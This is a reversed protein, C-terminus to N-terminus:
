SRPQTVLPDTSHDQCTDRVIQLPDEWTADKLVAWDWNAKTDTRACDIKGCWLELNHQPLNLATHHMMDGGFMRPVGLISAEDFGDCISPKSIGTERRRNKYQGATSQLVFRLNRRYEIAQVDCDFGQSHQFIDIDPHDCGSVTYNNPKLLAPYHQKARPERRGKLRCHFRCGVKGRHGVLGNIYIIAPADATTLYFFPHPLYRTDTAANWIALGERQIAALHHSGPYLFSEMVKPHNPGPITGGPNVRAKLYRGDPAFDLILWIYIWCDSTKNRYLQAGDISLMLVNDNPTIRGEHVAQLYDTGCVWDNYIQLGEPNGRLLDM